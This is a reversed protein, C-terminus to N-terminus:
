RGGQVGAREADRREIKRTTRGAANGGKASATIPARVDKAAAVIMARRAKSAAAKKLQNAAALAACEEALSTSVRRENALRDSLRRELLSKIRARREILLEVHPDVNGQAVEHPVM